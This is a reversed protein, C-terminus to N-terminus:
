GEVSSGARGAPAAPASAPRPARSFRDPGFPTIDIPPQEGSVLAAVIRGTTAGATLGTHGHGFAFIVNPHLDSRGIVPLSDPLSPRPGMWRSPRSRDVSPVFKAAMRELAKWRKPNAPRDAGAFEATGALRLGHAMSNAVFKAEAFMVPQRLQVGPQAYMVHYGREAVLPFRHGLQRALRASWAGAALVLTDATIEGVDTHLTVEGDGSVELARVEARRLRGQRATFDSALGRVLGGPDLAIAHGELLVGCAFGDGLAPEADRLEDANLERVGIGLERRLQWALADAEYAARSRYAHLYHSRAVLNDCGAEGAQQLHDEVACGHLDRLARAGRRVREPTASAVSRGFWSLHGALDRWGIALPGDPDLLWRPVHRWTGPLVLPVCSSTAIVGANGYSCAEGPELRDVLTVRHGKNQLQVACSVGVIGAGVVVVDRPGSGSLEM